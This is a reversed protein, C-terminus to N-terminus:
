GTLNLWEALDSELVKVFQSRPMVKDCGAARAAKLTDAEVHSGFAVVRPMVPCADRLGALLAPVDLGEAHLDLIVGGPPEQKAQELLAAASRAQRVVLGAARATASVRSYFILDDCLMLGPSTM